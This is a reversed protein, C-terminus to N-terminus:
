GAACDPVSVTADMPRALPQVPVIPTGPRSPEVLDFVIRTTTQPPIVLTVTFVPHGRERGIRATSPTGDVSVAALQADTTAYLSVLLRNSNVPASLRNRPGAVSEPLPELPADNHLDVTVLSQRASATCPGARYDLVRDLYYELKNGSGNNVVLAAYPGDTQDVEHGLATGSLLAQEDPAASWVSLRYQDTATRLAAVLAAASGDGDVVAAAVATAISQLYDKRATNDDGFRVYSESETIRVVNDADVVEGGPLTLPGTARLIEALVFPDLAVVGDLPQGGQQVWLSSWIQAAYPFHPSSNANSWLTTSSYGAYQQAYDPGLDPGSSRGSRLDRNSALGDVALRGGDATLLGFAGILGGTGRAEANTQFALLYRRPGDAGLMPPLLTAAKEATAVDATLRSVEAQLLRRADEIEAVWGPPDIARAREDLSRAATAAAALAERSAAIAEIDVQGPAPRLQKTLLASGGRLAPQLVQAILDDTIAAIDGATRFPGGAGPVASAISWPLASTADRAEHAASAALDIERGATATDGASVARAAADLHGRAAVLSARGDLASVALWGAMGLLGGLLLGAGLWWWRRRGPRRHPGSRRARTSVDTM